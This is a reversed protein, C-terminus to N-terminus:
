QDYAHIPKMRLLPTFGLLVPSHLKQRFGVTAGFQHPQQMWLRNSHSPTPPPPPPPVAGFTATADVTGDILLIYTSSPEDYQLQILHPKGDTV